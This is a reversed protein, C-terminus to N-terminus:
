STIKDLEKETYTKGDVLKQIFLIGELHDLEHQVVRSLFGDAKLTKKIGSLDTYSIKIKKYRLVYGYTDKISLCGELSLIKEKSYKIITPNILVIDKYKNDGYFKRVVCVRKNIGIQPAALGAGPVKSNELTDLLDKAIEVADNHNSIPLSKKLLIKNPHQIINKIPM